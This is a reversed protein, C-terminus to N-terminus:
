GRCRVYGESTLALPALAGCVADAVLWVLVCLPVLWLLDRPRM